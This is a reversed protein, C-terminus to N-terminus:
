LAFFRSLDLTDNMQIQLSRLDEFLQKVREQQDPVDALNNMELPDNEVDFLLVKPVNPYLLLKYGDKRIMRQSNMYAGYIGDYPSNTQAGKALPILNNFDVYDPQNIGALALSSAMIDQLYVDASVQNNRPIDKGAVILPVRISHDFLSQKGLLGHQGVSLGHDASFFIYTNDMKGSAELHDLIAGIQADLHSIIAYYEQRHKRIAYETRPFPALAEDRLSRSNGIHDKHPYEPLWNEPLRMKEVDYLDVYAKPAQRPDHPANFAVYMFFPESRQSADDIFAIADDRLVESWHKGGSWFGGHATDFPQWSHDNESKPRAYGLPMLQNFDGGEAIQKNIEKRDKQKMRNWADPPMGGAQVTGLQDFLSDAPAGVHWKGAMYTRYGKGAMLHSWTQRMALADKDWWPKEMAKARWLFRGSNIMSRSAVCIAGHWGGMNYAHTFSTGMSALRDLNPTSIEDNGLAQISHFTQDDAFLFLINPPSPPQQKAPTCAVLLLLLTYYYFSHRM